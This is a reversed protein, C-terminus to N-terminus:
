PLGNLDIQGLVYFYTWGDVSAIADTEHDGPYGSSNAFARRAAEDEPTAVGYLMLLDVISNRWNAGTGTSQTRQDLLRATDTEFLGVPFTPLTDDSQLKVLSTPLKVEWEDVIYPPPTGAGEYYIPSNFSNTRGQKLEEAISIFEPDDVMPPEGGNWIENTEFFNLVADEYVEPVPVVVRAAGASLFDRMKPDPDEALLKMHQRSHKAWFYPYLLWAMNHWEFAQEFFQVIMGEIRAEEIDFDGTDDAADFLENTRVTGDVILTGM